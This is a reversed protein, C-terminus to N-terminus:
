LSLDVEKEFPSISKGGGRKMGDEGVVASKGVCYRCSM